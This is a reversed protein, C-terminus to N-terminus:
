KKIIIQGDLVFHDCTERLGGITKCEINNYAFCVAFYVINNAIINFANIDNAKIDNAIINNANIDEANINKVKINEATINHATINFYGTINGEVILNADFFSDCDLELDGRIIRTNEM